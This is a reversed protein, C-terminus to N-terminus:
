SANRFQPTIAFGSTLQRVRIVAVAREDSQIALLLRRRPCDGSCHDYFDVSRWPVAVSSERSHGPPLVPDPSHIRALFYSGRLHAPALHAAQLNLTPFLIAEGIGRLHFPCTAGANQSM